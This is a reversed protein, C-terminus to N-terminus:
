VIGKMGSIGEAGKPPTRTMLLQANQLAMATSEGRAMAKSFETM